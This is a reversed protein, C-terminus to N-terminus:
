SSPGGADGGRSTSDRRGKPVSKKTAPEVTRQRAMFRELGLPDISPHEEALWKKTLSLSAKMSEAGYMHMCSSFESSAKYSSVADEQARALTSRLTDIEDEQAKARSEALKAQSDKEGIEEKLNDVEKRLEAEQLEMHELHRELDECALAMSDQMTIVRRTYVALTKNVSSVKRRSLGTRLPELACSRVLELDRNANTPPFRIDHFTTEDDLPDDDPLDVPMDKLHRGRSSGKEVNTTTLLEKGSVSGKGKDSMKRRKSPAPDKAPGEDDTALPIANLVANLDYEMGDMGVPRGIGVTLMNRDTLVKNLESGPPDLSVLQDIQKQLYPTVDVPSNFLRIQPNKWFTDFPFSGAVPRVFFFRKKWGSNSNRYHPVHFPVRTSFYIYSDCSTLRHMEFICRFLDISPDIGHLLCMYLFYLALRWANPAVQSPTLHFEHFITIFFPHIPFRLGGDMSDKYIAVEYPNSGPLRETPHPARYIHDDFIMFKALLRGLKDESNYVSYGKPINLPVVHGSPSRGIQINASSSRIPPMRGGARAVGASRDGLESLDNSQRTVESVPRSEGKRFDTSSRSTRRDILETSSSRDSSQSSSGSCSEGTSDSSSENDSSVVVRPM